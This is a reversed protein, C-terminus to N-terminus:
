TRRAKVLADRALGPAADSQRRVLEYKLTIHTPKAPKSGGRTTRIESVLVKVARRAMEGDYVPLPEFGEAQLQEALSRSLRPDDEAILITRAQTGM